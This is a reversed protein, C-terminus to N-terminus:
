NLICFQAVKMIRVQHVRLPTRLICIGHLETERRTLFERIQCTRVTEDESRDQAVRRHCGRLATRVPLVEVFGNGRGAYFGPAQNGCGSRLTLSTRSWTASSRLPAPPNSSLPPHAYFPFDVRGLIRDFGPNPKQQRAASSLPPVGPGITAVRQQGSAVQKAPHVATAATPFPSGDKM